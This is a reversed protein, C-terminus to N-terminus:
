VVKTLNTINVQETKNDLSIYRIIATVSSISLVVAQIPNSGVTVIDGVKFTKM